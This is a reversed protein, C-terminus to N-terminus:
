HGMSAAASSPPMAGFTMSNWIGDVLPLRQDFAEPTENYNLLVQKGNVDLLVYERTFAPDVGDAEGGLWGTDDKLWIIPHMSPTRVIIRTGEVDGLAIPEPGRVVEVGPLSALYAFFDAPWVIFNTADPAAQGSVADAPDLVRAGDVLSITPGWWQSTDDPPTGVHIVDINRPINNIARWDPGLTMTLPVDFKAGFSGTDFTQGGPSASPASSQALAAPALGSAALALTAVASALLRAGNVFGFPRHM